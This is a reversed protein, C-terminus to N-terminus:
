FNVESTPNKTEITDYVLRSQPCAKAEVKTAEVVWGVVLM